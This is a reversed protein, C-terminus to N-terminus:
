LELAIAIKGEELLKGMSDGIFNGLADGSVGVARVTSLLVNAERAEPSEGNSGGVQAAVYSGSPTPQGASRPPPAYPDTPARLPPTTPPRPTSGTPTKVAFESSKM